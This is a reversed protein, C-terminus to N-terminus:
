KNKMEENTMWQADMNICSDVSIHKEKAKQTIDNLWKKNKKIVYKFYEIRKLVDEVIQPPPDNKHNEKYLYEANLQTCSDISISIEIAQKKIQNYWDENNKIASKIQNIEASRKRIQKMIRYAEPGNKYMTYVEDIFGWGLEKLSAESAMIFVFNNKEVSEKLDFDAPNYTKGDPDYNFLQKNYYWFESKSFSNKPLDLFHIGMWYSDSVTLVRPKYYGTTDWKVIPYAMTFHPLDFLLNMGNYIDADPHILTNSMKVNSYDFKSLKKTSLREMYHSLTDFAMYMGYASWHTGTKPYLPYKATPKLNLFLANFDYFNVGTNKAAEIHKLYNTKTSAVDYPTPIYEPYFTAKGSAFLLAFHIGKKALTDQIFKLKIFRNKIEEDGVYDLGAHTVLYKLEYLFGEKGIVVDKANAKKFLWYSLQNNLCIFFYHFGLNDNLYKEKTQAYNGNFWDEKTFKIDSAFVADGSLTRNIYFGYHKQLAPFLMVAIVAFILVFSM